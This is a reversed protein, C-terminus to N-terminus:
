ALLREIEDQWRAVAQNWDPLAAGAQAAGRALHALVDRRDLLQALATALAAVDGPEVLVGASVPVTEPIAGGRTAVIPLGHAMAEAFAMGYGEYFSPLVFLDAADYAAGLSEPAMEDVLTIRDDLGHTAIAQRLVAVYAPDRSLSGICQLHWDERRLKALAEILVLHGKRPTLTAVSLLRLPGASADRKGVTAPKATGPPAIAIRGPDVGYAAVARATARSPCIVGRFFPLLGAEIARFRAQEQASLGSEAALPHHVWAVLRLRAAERGLCGEFGALALGDIVASADADLQALARTAETRAKADADPFQGALEVIDVKQGRRDLGDAVHRAFLYGGTLQDIPGPVILALTV